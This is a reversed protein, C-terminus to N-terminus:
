PPAGAALLGGDGFTQGGRCAPCLCGGDHNAVAKLILREKIHGGTPQHATTVKLKADVTRGLLPSIRDMLADAIQGDIITGQTEIRFSRGATGIGALKGTVQRYHTGFSTQTLAGLLVRQTCRDLRIVADTGGRDHWHLLADMDSAAISSSVQVLDTVTPVFAPLLLDIIGDHDPPLKFSVFQFLRIMARASREFPSDDDGRRRLLPLRGPDAAPIPPDSDQGRVSHLVRRLAGAVTALLEAHRVVSSAPGDLWVEFTHGEAAALIESRGRRWEPRCRPALSPEGSASTHGGSGPTPYPRRM